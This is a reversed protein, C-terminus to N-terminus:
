QNECFFLSQKNLFRHIQPTKSKSLQITVKKLNFTNGLIRLGKQLYIFILSIVRRAKM